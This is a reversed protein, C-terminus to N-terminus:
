FYSNHVPLFGHKESDQIKISITLLCPFVYLSVDHGTALATLHSNFGRLLINPSAESQLHQKLLHWYYHLNLRPINQPFFIRSLSPALVSPLLFPRPSQNNCPQSHNTGTICLYLTVISLSPCISMHVRSPYNVRSRNVNSLYTIRRFHCKYLSYGYYWWISISQTLCSTDLNKDKYWRFECYQSKFLRLWIDRSKM